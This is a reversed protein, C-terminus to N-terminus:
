PIRQADENTTYISCTMVLGQRGLKGSQNSNNAVVKNKNKGEEIEQVSKKRANKKPRGSQRGVFPPLFSVKSSQPWEDIGIIPLM